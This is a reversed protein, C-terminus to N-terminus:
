NYNFFRKYTLSDEGFNILLGVETKTAKLYNILQSSHSPTLNDLAKSEVIISDWCVFDAVYFQQLTKGKYFVGIKHEKVFPINREACEMALAEGYVAELFGKGLQKHVEMAAGIIKYTKDSYKDTLVKKELNEFNVEM